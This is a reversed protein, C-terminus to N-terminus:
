AVTLNGCSDGWVRWHVLSLRLIGIDAVATCKGTFREYCVSVRLALLYNLVMLIWVKSCGLGELKRPM